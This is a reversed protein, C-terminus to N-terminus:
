RYEGTMGIIAFSETWFSPVTKQIESVIRYEPSLNSWRWNEIEAGVLYKAFLEFDITYSNKFESDTSYTISYKNSYPSTAETYTKVEGQKVPNDSTLSFGWYEIDSVTKFLAKKDSLRIYKYDTLNSKSKPAITLIRDVNYNETYSSNSSSGVGIGLNGIGIAGGVNSSNGKTVVYNKNDFYSKSTFDNFRRFTSARDVYVPTDTKNHLTISYGIKVKWGGDYYEVAEPVILVLIEKTSIVSAETFCMIPFFSKSKKNTKKVNLTPLISYKSKYEENDEVPEAKITKNSHSKDVNSSKVDKTDNFTESDGNEYNIALVKDISLSYIPGDLNSHKKYKIESSNIELVKSLITSNDSLVIVDQAFSFKALFIFLLITLNKM